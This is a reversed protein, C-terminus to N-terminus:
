QAIKVVVKHVPEHGSLPAHADSPFFIALQQPRVTFWCAPEDDFFGVDRQADFPTSVRQCVSRPSWGMRDEGDLVVQLDIYREHYELMMAPTARAPTRAVIAFLRDGDLEYRGDAVQSWDRALLAAEAEAMRPHLSRYLALNALEDLIM